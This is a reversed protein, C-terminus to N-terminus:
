WLELILTNSEDSEYLGFVKVLESIILESNKIDLIKDVFINYIAKQERDSYESFKKDDIKLMTRTYGVIVELKM